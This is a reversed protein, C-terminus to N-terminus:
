LLLYISFFGVVKESLIQETLAYFISLQVFILLTQLTIENYANQSGQHYVNFCTNHMKHGAKPVEHCLVVLTQSLNLRFM